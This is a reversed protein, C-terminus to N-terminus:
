VVDAAVREKWLATAAPQKGWQTYAQIVLEGADAIDEQDQAVSANRVLGEYGNRLLPEATSWRQQGAIAYGLLTMMRYRYMPDDGTEGAGLADLEQRLLAEAQAFKKQEIWFQALDIVALIANGHRPGLKRRYGDAAQKYLVEARAPETSAYLQALSEVTDLTDPHDDGLVRRQTAWIEEDLRVADAHRGMREYLDALSGLLRLTRTHDPPWV